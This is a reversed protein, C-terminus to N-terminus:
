KKHGLYSITTTIQYAPKSSASNVLGPVLHFKEKDTDRKKAKSQKIYSKIESSPKRKHFCEVHEKANTGNSNM